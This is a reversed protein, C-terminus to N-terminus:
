PHSEGIEAALSKKHKPPKRRRDPEVRTPPPTGLLARSQRRVETAARFKKKPKKAKSPM